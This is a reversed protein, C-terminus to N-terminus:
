RVALQTLLLGSEHTEVEFLGTRDATFALTASRGAPLEAERDYGHVHLTDARDSTVELRIREGKKVEIRGPAPDVEGDRVAIKVTRDVPAKDKDKDKSTDKDKDDEKGKNDGDHHGGSHGRGSGGSSATVEATAQVAKGGVAWVTHDDAYLRVTIRHTGRPVASGPLHHWSGYVRAVKRDDVYLHAHGRGAIAAGGVSDPTFRFRSASVKLNWGDESDPRVTLEASPADARPLQRLRHGAEDTTELLEGVPGSAAEHGTGPKHHTTPRGGCGSLLVLALVAVLVGRAGGYTTRM